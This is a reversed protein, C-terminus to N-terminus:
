TLDVSGCLVALTAISFRPFLAGKEQQNDNKTATAKM